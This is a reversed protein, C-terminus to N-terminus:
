DGKFNIRSIQFPMKLDAPYEVSGRISWHLDTVELEWLPVFASTRPNFVVEKNVAYINNPNPLFLMYNKMYVYKIFSSMLPVFKDSGTNIELLKNTLEILKQDAPLSSWADGPRYVFFATWPHRYWDYNGWLLIDWETTNENKHTGFLEKFVTKEDPVVNLVLKININSLFFQIDKVLFLFSEQTLINIELPLQPNMGKEIQFETVIKKLIETKDKGKLRNEENKFFDELLNIADNVGNFNPSVMTPSLEGEGLMSLNLLMERDISQNIAYRIKEDMIAKNGNILNFHMAYSNTSPSIILKAYESLVTEAEYAFPISTIDLEGENYLILDLAEETELSTYLTIFEVKPKSEGWYNPNARLEVKHTSRDGEIYGEQLIYPGLGYLGPAALNPASNKGNWGYKKLYSTSYFQIWIADHIFVGYSEKLYFRVTYDDIKEVRDFIKYLKTYTFPQKKFYEMNLLVSDANFPTGDQFKVNKKLSFEYIKNSINIHSLALDYEWGEKNNAPRILASNISHSIALYPLNPIFLKVHSGDKFEGTVRKYATDVIEKSFQSNTAQKFENRSSISLSVSKNLPEIKIKYVILVILIISISLIIIFNLAKYRMISNYFLLM